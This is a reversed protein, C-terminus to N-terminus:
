DDTLVYVVELDGQQVREHVFHYNTNLHQIRSNFVPNASLSIASMNDCQIMPPDLLFMDLDKLIYRMGSINATTNAQFKYEDKISSRSVSSQKKSQRSIPNNGLFVVYGIVSRRTNLDAVWDSNSFANLNM